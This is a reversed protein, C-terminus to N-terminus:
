TILGIFEEVVTPVLGTIALGSKIRNRIMTSSIEMEPFPFYEIFPFRKKVEATKVGGRDAACFRVLSSLEIYDKWSDLILAQDMGIIISLDWEPNESLLYKVTDITYSVDNRIIELDSVSIDDRHHLGFQGSYKRVFSGIKDDGTNSLGLSSLGLSMISDGALGPNIDFVALKTMLSRVPGSWGEKIKKHSPVHTPM